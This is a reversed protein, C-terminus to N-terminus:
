DELELVVSAQFPASDAYSVILASRTSAGVRGLEFRAAGAVTWQGDRHGLRLSVGLSSLVDRGATCDATKCEKSGGGEMADVSM